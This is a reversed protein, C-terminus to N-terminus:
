GAALASQRFQDVASVAVGCQRREGLYEVAIWLGWFQKNQDSSPTQNNTYGRGPVSEGRRYLNDTVVITNIILSRLITLTNTDTTLSTQSLDMVPRGEGNTGPPDYVMRRPLTVSNGARDFVQIRFRTEGVVLATNPAQAAVASQQRFTGPLGDWEPYLASTTDFLLNYASIGTCDGIDAIRMHM